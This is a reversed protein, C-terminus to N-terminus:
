QLRVTEGIPPPSFAVLRGRGEHWQWQFWRLDPAELDVDFHCAVEAPSGDTAWRTVEITAGTLRIPPLQGPTGDHRWFLLDLPGPVGDSRILVTRADVRSLTVPSLGVTLVRLRAPVPRDHGARIFPLYFTMSLAPVHPLVVTQGALATDDPLTLAPAEMARGYAGPDASVMALRVPALVLHIALLGFATIVSARRLRGGRSWVAERDLVSALYAGLLGMAGLGVFFLQRDEPLASTAPVVALLHGAGWFRALRDSRLLPSLMLCLFGLLAVSALWRVSAGVGTATNYANAPLGLWQAALLIPGREILTHLFARPELVPSVYLPWASAAGYGLWHYTALWAAIVTVGPWLGAMRRRVGGTDLFLAHALLYGVIAVAAEASLLAAGLWVCALPAGPRWGQRRWRDHAHLCLTTFFAAALVNRNALWGVAFGHADDIAYLLAALGATWAAPFVRRYMWGAGIVLAGLWALSHAHMIAPAEPWVSYDLRHTWASLPRWFAVRTGPDTWWPLIGRDVMAGIRSANVFSFVDGPAALVGHLSPARSVTALHVWDDAVLGVGLSPLMLAIAVGAWVVPM